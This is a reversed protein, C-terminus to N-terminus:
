HRTFRTQLAWLRGCLRVGGILWLLYALIRLQRPLPYSKTVVLEPIPYARRALRYVRMAKGHDLQWLRLSTRSMSRAFARRVQRSVGASQMVALQRESSEIISELVAPEFQRDMQRGTQHYRQNYVAEPAGCVVANKVLLRVLLDTDERALLSEDWALDEFLARKFCWLAGQPKLELEFFAKLADPFVGSPPAYNVNWKRGEPSMYRRAGICLDANCAEMAALYAAGATPEISDDSDLFKVYDGKSLAMGLNRAASPGRNEQAAYRFRHAPYQRSLGELFVPTDDASGDDVVIVETNQWSQELASQVAESLFQQRNFTPIIISLLPSHSDM